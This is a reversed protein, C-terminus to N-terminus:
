YKVWSSLSWIFAIVDVSQKLAFALTKAFMVVSIRLLITLYRTMNQNPVYKEDFM